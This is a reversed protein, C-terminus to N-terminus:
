EITGDNVIEKKSDKTVREADQMRDGTVLKKSKKEM